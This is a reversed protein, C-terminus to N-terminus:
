QKTIQFTKQYDGVIVEFNYLGNAYSTVDINFINSIGPHVDAELMSVTKGVMDRVLIVARSNNTANQVDINVTNTAPNPYVLIDVYTCNINLALVQTSSVTGNFQKAKVLYYRRNFGQLNDFAATYNLQNASAPINRVLSFDSGNTSEYVEFLELNDTNSVSWNLEARCDESTGYYNTFVVALPVNNTNVLFHLTANAQAGRGDIIEYPFEVPGVFGPVPTFTYTGNANLVLTGKGAITTTQPIASQVDGEADTDNILADGTVPNITTVAKYDDSATTTNPAVSTDIVTIIQYAELTNGLSDQVSYRITDVGIFGANPTYTINGTIPDVSTTGNSPSQIVTVTSPNMGVGTAENASADNALTNITVPVDIATSVIDTNAVAPNVISASDLVSIQLEISDVRGNPYIIPVKFTFVGATASSFSYTGDANVVPVSTTGAVAAPTGYVTGTPINLDNTSVNGNVSVNTWTISIDPNPTPTPPAVIIHITAKASDPNADNDFVTYPFDVTGSFGPAPTFTYNGAADMVFTGSANTFNQPLTAQTDGEADNDNALANGSVLIGNPTTKIDDAATTTNPANLPLVTVVQIATSTNGAADTVSYRITDTGAFGANPVYTIEGTTTNVTATGNAPATTIATTSPVLAIGPNGSVDNALTPITVTAGNQTTVLDTGLIPNNSNPDNPDVVTISLPTYITDGSPLVIPVQFNYTGPTTATFTYTGNANMTPVATTPNSSGALPTVYASGTQINEDNTNVSGSIFTNVFGGNIDPLPMNASPLIIVITTDCIGNNCVVLCTTDAINDQNGNPTFTVCGNNDFGSMSFDTPVGCSSFTPGGNTDIDNIVVCAVVPTTLTNPQVYITDNCVVHVKQICSNLNGNIDTATWTILTAGSNFNTNNYNSVLSLIGCNDSVIPMALNVNTAVCNSSAVRILTDASCLIVPKTTDNVTVTFACTSSNGNVDAVTYTVTSTGVNFTTGSADATDAKITAGTIAYTISAVGCNDSSSVPAINNVAQNCTNSINSMTVNAPCVIVPKTTDNITVTFACTSSNGNVDTVTYTVTSTGVNFTTGSADATDAKITAGTIAYTISAVGCNDSSSVPAINNVVQ